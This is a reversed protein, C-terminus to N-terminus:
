RRRAERLRRLLRETTVSHIAILRDFERLYAEADEIAARNEARFKRIKELEEQTM